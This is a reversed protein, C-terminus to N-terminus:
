ANPEKVPVGVTFEVSDVALETVSVQITDTRVSGDARTLTGTIVASGVGPSHIWVELDNIQDEEVTAVQDNSTQYTVTAGEPVETLVKGDEDRMSLSAQVMEKWTMKIATPM